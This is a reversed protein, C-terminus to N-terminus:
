GMSVLLFARFKGRERQAKALTQREMVHAFFAQTLDEADQPSCGRRRVYVYLPYWYTQCLQELAKQAQTWDRGAALVVTWRTTAFSDNPKLEASM